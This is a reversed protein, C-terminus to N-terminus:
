FTPQSEQSCTNLDGVAVVLRLVSARLFFLDLHFVVLGDCRCCSELVAAKEQQGLFLAFRPPPQGSHVVIRTVSKALRDLSRAIPMQAVDVVWKEYNKWKANLRCNGHNTAIQIM